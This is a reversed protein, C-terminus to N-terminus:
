HASPITESLPNWDPMSQESLCASTQPLTLFESDSRCYVKFLFSVHGPGKIEPFPKFCELWALSQSPLPLGSLSTEEPRKTFLRLGDADALLIKITDGWWGRFIFLHGSFPAENLVHQIQEGSLKRLLVTLLDPAPNELTM